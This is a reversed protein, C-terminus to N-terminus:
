QTAKPEVDIVVTQEGNVCDIIPYPRPTILGNGAARVSGGLCLRSDMTHSELLFIGNADSTTTAATSHRDFTFFADPDGPSRISVQVELGALQADPPGVLQGSVRLQLDFPDPQPVGTPSEACGALLFLLFVVATVSISIRM